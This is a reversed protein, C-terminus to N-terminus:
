DLNIPPLENTGNKITETIRSRDKSAYAGRFRDKTEPKEGLSFKKLKTKSEEQCVVTVKYEGAQAGEKDGTMLVFSGDEETFGTAPITQIDAGVLHFTVTADPLPKNHYLLTGKVPNLKAGGDSCSLCSLGLLFVLWRYCCAPLPYGLQMIKSNGKGALKRNSKCAFNNPRIGKAIL